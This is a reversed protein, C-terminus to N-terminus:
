VGQRKEEEFCEQETDVSINQM